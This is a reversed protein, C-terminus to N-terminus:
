AFLQLALRAISAAAQERIGESHRSRSSLKKLVFLLRPDGAKAWAVAPLCRIDGILTLHELCFTVVSVL